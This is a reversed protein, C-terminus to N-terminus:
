YILDSKYVIDSDGCNPCTVVRDDDITSHCKICILIDQNEITDLKGIKHSLDCIKEILEDDHYKFCVIQSTGKEAGYNNLCIEAHRVGETEDKNISLNVVKGDQVVITVVKYKRM